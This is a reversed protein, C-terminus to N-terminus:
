NVTPEPPRESLNEATVEAVDINTSTGLRCEQPTFRLYVEKGSESSEYIANILELSRRGEVGDLTFPREQRISQVLDRYFEQHGFGYVDPPSTSTEWVQEDQPLSQEFQWGQLENVAFGGIVVSGQSGLISISGELDKPRACTTAEIIGLAGSAFKLVVVGLDETEVPALFTGTKAFVSEVPGMLWTLLDVHHSAQNTLVGGDLAWTGRWSDQKYYEPRRCWRVRVTGLVMRGFRGQSAAEKLAVVPPNYRNQKVVFLRTGAERCRNILEDADRLRLAMPKEVVLYPVRGACQLGVEAHNGSWTLVSVMDLEEHALMSEVSYYKKAGTVKAAEDARDQNIDCVATIKFDDSQNQLVQSHKKFIRGCGVLGIRLPKM